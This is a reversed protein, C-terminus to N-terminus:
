KPLPPLVRLLPLVWDSTNQTRQCSTGAAGAQQNEGAEPLALPLFVGKEKSAKELGALTSALCSTATRHRLVAEGQEDYAVLHYILSGGAM